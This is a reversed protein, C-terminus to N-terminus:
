YTAYEVHINIQGSYPGAHVQNVTLNGFIFLYATGTKPTYGAHPPTPPPGPPGGPRRAIQFTVTNGTVLIAEAKAAEETIGNAGRNYYAMKIEVPLRKQPDNLNDINNELLLFNNAPPELTVTVDLYEVGEILIPVAEGDSLLVQVNEGGSIIDGFDLVDHTPADLFLDSNTYLGFNVQQQAYLPTVALMMLLLFFVNHPPHHKM